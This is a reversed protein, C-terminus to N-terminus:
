IKAVQDRVAIFAEEYNLLDRSNYAHLLMVFFPVELDSLREGKELRKTM